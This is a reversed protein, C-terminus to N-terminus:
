RVEDLLENYKEILREFAQLPLSVTGTIRPIFRDTEAHYEVDYGVQVRSASLTDEGLLAKISDRAGQDRAQSKTYAYTSADQERQRRANAAEQKVRAAEEAVLWPKEAESWKAVFDIAPAVWFLNGDTVLFGKSRESSEALVFLSRNDTIVSTKRYYKTSVLTVKSALSRPLVGVVRYAKPVHHRPHTVAWETTLRQKLIVSAQM